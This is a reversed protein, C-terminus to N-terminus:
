LDMENSLDKLLPIECVFECTQELDAMNAVAPRSQGEFKVLAMNQGDFSDRSLRQDQASLCVLEFAGFLLSDTQQLKTFAGSDKRKRVETQLNVVVSLFNIAQMEWERSAIPRGMPPDDNEETESVDLILLTCTDPSPPAGFLLTAVTLLVKDNLDFKSLDAYVLIRVLKSSDVAATVGPTASQHFILGGPVRQPDACITRFATWEYTESTKTRIRRYLQEAEEGETVFLRDWMRQCKALFLLDILPDFRLHPQRHSLVSPGDLDHRMLLLKTEVSNSGFHPINEQDMLLTVLSYIGAVLAGITAIQVRQRNSLDADVPLIIDLTSTNCRKLQKMVFRIPPTYAISIAIATPPRPAPPLLLLAAFDDSGPRLSPGRLSM